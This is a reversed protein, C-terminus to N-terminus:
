GKTLSVVIITIIIIIVLAIIATLKWNKCQERRKLTRAQNDFLKAQDQLRKTDEEIKNTKELNKLMGDINKHMTLKVDEVQAQVAKVKDKKSPDDYDACLKSALKECKKNLAFEGCTLSKDGNDKRFQPIFENIMAFVLREPYDKTTIVIYVRQQTDLTFNFANIDGVLRYRSGPTVKFQFDPALLVEKVASHYQEVNYDGKQHVYSVVMLKDSVRAVAMFKINGSM